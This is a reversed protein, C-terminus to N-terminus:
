ESEVDLTIKLDNARIMPISNVSPTMPTVLPNYLLLNGGTAADFIGFHTLTGWPELVENFHIEEPNKSESDVASSMLQTVSAGTMGILVRKYNGGSPETFNTGDKNPETTSLGIYSAGSSSIGNTIKSKGILDNIIKNAAYHTFM